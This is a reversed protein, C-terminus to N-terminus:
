NITPMNSMYYANNAYQHHMHEMQQIHQHHQVHQQHYHQQQQAQLQAQQAQAETQTQARVQTNTEETDSDEGLYQFQKWDLVGSDDVISSLTNLLEPYTAMSEKIWRKSIMWSSVGKPPLHFGERPAGVVRGKKGLGRKPKPDTRNEEDLTGYFRLLRRSRWLYGHTHLLNENGGSDSEESSMCEVQLAGDFSVDGFTPVKM